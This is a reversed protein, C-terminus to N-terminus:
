LLGVSHATQYAALALVVLGVAVTLLRPPALKVAWGALPAACLGGVILGAVAAAHNVFGNDAQWRGSLLALLFTASITSTVFFEVLNATGIAKRPYGGIGVLGTTVTPGWGGGGVADLFGGFLGLPSSLKWNIPKAEAPRFARVVILLGMIALYATIYPRIVDGDVSTLVFAGVAGGTVGGAALPAFLKWDVNGHAAHSGGSAATTFVEATHVTASATAPPVGFGLLVTTSIVGYAMGLAGDVMQALFGVLFFLLFDEYGSPM